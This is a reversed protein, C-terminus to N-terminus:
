FHKVTESEEICLSPFYEGALELDKFAPVHLFMTPIDALCIGWPMATLFGGGASNLSM